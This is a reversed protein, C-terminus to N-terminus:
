GRGARSLTKREPHRGDPWGGFAGSAGAFLKGAGRRAVNLWGQPRPRYSDGVWWLRQRIHPAGVGAACLDAGGTEYGLAELDSRVGSLWERGDKSAVQEGFVTSPKCEAILRGFVPWLHREDNVGRKKGANSFPQCPCSGTWVQRDEPWGALQLAYEWGGIGAFFHARQFGRLDGPTVDQISRSDVEGAPLLGDRILNNLWEVCFPNNENYYVAM